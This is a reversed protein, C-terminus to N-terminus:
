AFMMWQEGLCVQFSVQLTAATWYVGEGHPFKIDDLGDNLFM